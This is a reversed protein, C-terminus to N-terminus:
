VPHATKWRGAKVFVNETSHHYLRLMTASGDHAVACQWARHDLSGGDSGTADLREVLIRSRPHGPRECLSSEVEMAKSM